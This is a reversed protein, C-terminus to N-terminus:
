IAAAVGIMACDEVAPHKAALQEVEYASVNEGKVRVSDTMRGRFYMNGAEDMSGLDGTHFGDQRLAEATAGRDMWYGRTIGGPLDTRVVIEGREGGALPQGAPGVLKVSFWPVPRGISGV